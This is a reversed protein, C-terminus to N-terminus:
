TESGIRRITEVVRALEENFLMVGAELERIYAEDRGIRRQFPPLGPWAICIDIWDREAVWLNGQLQARHETPVKDLVHCEILIHPFASKIELMGDENVMGDPSCGADIRDHRIFGVQTLDCGNRFIYRQRIGDEMAHGREHNPGTWGSEDPQGTVIEGALRYLYKTRTISPGGGKGQALVTSFESATPLGLRAQRWEVTGQECEILKPM